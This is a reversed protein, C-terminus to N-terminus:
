DLSSETRGQGASIYGEIRPPLYFLRLSEITSDSKVVLAIHIDAFLALEFAASNM